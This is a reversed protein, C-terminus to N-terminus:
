VFLFMPNRDNQDVQKFKRNMVKFEFITYIGVIIIILKMLFIQDLFRHCGELGELLSWGDVFWVSITSYEIWWRRFYMM